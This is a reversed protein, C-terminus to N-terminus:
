RKTVRYRWLGHAEPVREREVIYGGYEKKRFDRLRASISAQPYGTLMEIQSLTRWDGPLMVKLVMERQRAIRKGDQAETFTAANRPPGDCAWKSVPAGALLPLQEANM